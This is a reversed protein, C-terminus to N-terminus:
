RTDPAPYLPAGALAEIAKEFAMFESPADLLHGRGFRDPYANSGSSSIKAGRAVIRLAWGSGDAVDKAVYRPLWRRVGADAAAKWFARWAEPSPVARISDTRTGPRSDWPRRVLLVTDGRLEVGATGTGFGGVSYELVQPAGERPLPGTPDDCSTLLAAALVVPVLLLSRPLM